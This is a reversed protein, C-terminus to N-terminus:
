NRGGPPMMPADSNGIDDLILWQDGVKQWVIVSKGQSVMPEMPPGGPEGTITMTWATREVALTGNVTLGLRRTEIQATGMGFWEAYKARITDRGEVLPEGEPYLRGEPAYMAAMSDANETTVFSNMRAYAADIAATGAETEAAMREAAQEPTEAAQCALALGAVLGVMTLSRM